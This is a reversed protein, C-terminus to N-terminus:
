QVTVVISNTAAKGSSVDVATITATGPSVGTIVGYSKPVNSVLLVNPNSSM